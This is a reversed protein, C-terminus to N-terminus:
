TIGPIKLGGTAKEIEQDMAKSAAELAANATAVVADWALEPDSAFFAPDVDIRVLKRGYSATVKVKDNAGTAELTHDQLSKRTDEVKKNLRSAQRMLENMGGRFQM